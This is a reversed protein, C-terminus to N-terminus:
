VEVITRLAVWEELTAQIQDIYTQLPQTGAEQIVRYSAARRCSGYKQRRMKKGTMKQLFGM